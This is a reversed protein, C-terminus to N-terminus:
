FLISALSTSSCKSVIFLMLFVGSEIKSGKLFCNDAVIASIDASLFITQAVFCAYMAKPFKIVTQAISSM